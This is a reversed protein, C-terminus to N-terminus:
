SFILLSYLMDRVPESLLCGVRNGELVVVPAESSHVNFGRPGVMCIMMRM